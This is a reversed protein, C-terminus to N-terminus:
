TWRRTGGNTIPPVPDPHPVRREARPLVAGAPLTAPRCRAFTRLLVGAPTTRLAGGAPAAVVAGPLVSGVPLALPASASRSARM